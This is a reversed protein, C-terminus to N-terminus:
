LGIVLVVAHRFPAASRHRMIAEEPSVLAFFDDCQLGGYEEIGEDEGAKEKGGKEDGTTFAL